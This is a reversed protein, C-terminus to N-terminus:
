GLFSGSSVLIDISNDLDDMAGAHGGFYGTEPGHGHDFPSAL